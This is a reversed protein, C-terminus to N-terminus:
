LRSHTVFHISFTLSPYKINPTNGLVLSHGSRNGGPKIPTLSPAIVMCQCGLAEIRRKLTFGCVGAEYCFEVEAPSQKKIKNVMKKIDRANNKVVFRVIEEHGPYDLAVKHDKKHTDMAVYTIANEMLSWNWEM